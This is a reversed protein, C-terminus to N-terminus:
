EGSHREERAHHIGRNDVPHSLRSDGSFSTQTALSTDRALVDQILDPGCAVNAEERAERLRRGNVAVTGASPSRLGYVTEAVQHKGSANSGMTM